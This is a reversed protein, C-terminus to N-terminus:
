RSYADGYLTSFNKYTTIFLDLSGFLWCILVLHHMPHHPLRSPWVLSDIFTTANKISSPLLIPPKRHSQTVVYELLSKAASIFPEGPDAYRCLQEHYIARVVSPEFQEEFSLNTLDVSAQTLQLQTTLSISSSAELMREPTFKCDQPLPWALPIGGCRERLFCKHHLCAAVGPYQHSLHWYATGYKEKDDSICQSCARLQLKSTASDFFIRNLIAYSSKTPTRLANMAIQINARTQFPSFYRLNIMISPISDVSTWPANTTRLRSSTQSRNAAEYASTHTESESNKAGFFLTQRIFHSFFAEDPLLTLTTHTKPRQKSQM